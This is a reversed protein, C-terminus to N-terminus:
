VQEALPRDSVLHVHYPGAEEGHYCHGSRKGSGDLVEGHEDWQEDAVHVADDFEAAKGWACPRGDTNPKIVLFHCGKPAPGQAEVLQRVRADAFVFKRDKTKMM